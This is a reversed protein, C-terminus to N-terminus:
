SKGIENVIEEALASQNGIGTLKSFLVELSQNSNNNSLEEFTGDAILEGNSILIIRDSIKEVVDM